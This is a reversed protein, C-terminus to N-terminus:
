SYHDHALEYRVKELHDEATSSTERIQAFIHRTSVNCLLAEIEHQFAGADNRLVFAVLDAFVANTKSCPLTDQLSQIRAHLATIDDVLSKLLVSDYVNVM